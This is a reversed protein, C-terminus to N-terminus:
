KSASESTATKLVDALRYGALVVRREAIAKAQKVPPANDQATGGKLTGGCYAVDEAINVSEDCWAKTDAASLETLKERGFEPRNRLEVAANGNIRYSQTSGLLGDWLSHLNIIPRGEAVRIYFTNGGKDGYEHNLDYYSVCHLPQHIDGALHLLWCVAIAKEADTGTKVKEAREARLGHPHEAVGGAV